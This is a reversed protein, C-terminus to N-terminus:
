IAACPTAGPNSLPQQARAIPLLNLKGHSVWGLAAWHQPSVWGCPFSGWLRRCCRLAPLVVPALIFICLFVHITLLIERQRDIYIYLYIHTDSDIYAYM